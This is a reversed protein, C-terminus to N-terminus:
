IFNKPRDTMEFEYVWIWPNKKWSEKGNISQWLTEFSHIPNTTGRKEKILYNQYISVKSDAVHIEKIGEKKANEETIDQLREVSVNTVKLFIRCAKKPMFISPKWANFSNVYDAKYKFVYEVNTKNSLVSETEIPVSEFTERVWLVDGPKVKAKVKTYKETPKGHIDIKEFYHEYYQPQEEYNSTGDYRYDDPSINIMDLGQLRRTQTKRGELIAQVNPTSFLIPKEKM